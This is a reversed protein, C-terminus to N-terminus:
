MEHLSQFENNAGSQFSNEVQSPEIKDYHQSASTATVKKFNELFSGDNNFQNIPLTSDIERFNPVLPKQVKILTANPLPPTSSKSDSQAAFIKKALENTKQKDLIEQRKRAIIEEQRSMQAVRGEREVYLKPMTEIKNINM